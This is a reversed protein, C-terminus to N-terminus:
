LVGAYESVGLGSVVCEGGISRMVCVCVCVCVSRGEGQDDVNAETSMGVPPGTPPM